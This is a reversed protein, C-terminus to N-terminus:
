TAAPVAAPAETNVAVQQVPPAVVVGVMVAQTTSLVPEPASRLLPLLVLGHVLLAVTTAFAHRRYQVANAPLLTPSLSSLSSCTAALIAPSIEQEALVRKGHHSAGSRASWEVQEEGAHSPEASRALAMGMM